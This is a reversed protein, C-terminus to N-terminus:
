SHGLVVFGLPQKVDAHCRTHGDHIKMTTISTPHKTSLNPKEMESRMQSQPTILTLPILRGVINHSFMPYHLVARKQEKHDHRGRGQDRCACCVGFLVPGRLYESIGPRRSFDSRQRDFVRWGRKWIFFFIECGRPACKKTEERKERANFFDKRWLLLM